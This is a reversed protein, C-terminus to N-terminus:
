LLQMFVCTNKCSFVLQIQLYCRLGDGLPNVGKREKFEAAQNVELQWRAVTSFTLTLLDNGCFRVGNAMRGSVWSFRYVVGELRFSGLFCLVPRRLINELGM